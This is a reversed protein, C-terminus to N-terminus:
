KQEPFKIKLQKHPSVVVNYTIEVVEKGNPLTRRYAKKSTVKYVRGELDQQHIVVGDQDVLISRYTSPIM